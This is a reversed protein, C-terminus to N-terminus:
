LIKVFVVYKKCKRIIGAARKTMIEKKKNKFNIIKMAHERLYECFKKMCDKGRYANHKNERSKFSSTTSMSFGSTINLSQLPVTSSM